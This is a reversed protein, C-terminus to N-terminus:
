NLRVYNGDKRGALGLALNYLAYLELAFPMYGGYGLLPMEFVHCCNGWPVHYVWKPYSFYNWLEWFFATMLAGLWMTIVPKWDGSQTHRALHPNGLWINLPETVFYISIWLFPFFLLPWILMLALMFLGAAFFALTTWREPRIRPGDPLRRIFRFTSVLEASGFVAPIVTTFNISAWFWFEERSFFEIGEYHWNQLRSNLAEFLWWVPASLLFLGIYKRWDRRLLSTGKRLYVLADVTLCYGLWLPFFGWHTRAGPLGWNLLWFVLVLGAGIWGYGPISRRITASAAPQEMM